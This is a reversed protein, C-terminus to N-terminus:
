SPTERAAWSRLAHHREGDPDGAYLVGAATGPFRRRWRM